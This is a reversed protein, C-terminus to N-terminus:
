RSAAGDLVSLIRLAAETAGHLPPPPPVAREMVREIPETLRGALLDANAVHECPIMTQMERVLIPYEPFDGRETYVIRTGCALADTVIGYGPKTVIVDAARVLDLYGAGLDRLESREFRRVNRGSGRGASEALFLTDGMAEVVSLDLADLGLGGFSLLM